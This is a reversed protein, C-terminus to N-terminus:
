YGLIIQNGVMAELNYVVAYEEGNSIYRYAYTDNTAFKNDINLPDMAMNSWYAPSSDVLVAKLGLYCNTYVDDTFIAGRDERASNWHSSQCVPYTKNDNYYIDLAAELQEMDAVRVTDRTKMRATNLSVMTLTSLLGLISVVVLIEVLTFGSQRVKKIM